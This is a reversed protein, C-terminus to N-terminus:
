YEVDYDVVGFGGVFVCKLVCDELVVFVVLVCVCLWDFLM